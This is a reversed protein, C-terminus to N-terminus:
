FEPEEDTSDIQHDIVEFMENTDVRVSGGEPIEVDENWDLFRWAKYEDDNLVISKTVYAVTKITVTHHKAM